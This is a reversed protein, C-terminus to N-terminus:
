HLPRFSFPVLVHSVLSSPLFIFTLTNHVTIGSTYKIIIYVFNVDPLVSQLTRNQKEFPLQVDTQLINYQHM